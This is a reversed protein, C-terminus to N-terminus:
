KTTSLGLNHCARVGRNLARVTATSNGTKSEKTIASRLDQAVGELSADGSKALASILSGKVLIAFTAGHGKPLKPPTGILKCAAAELQAGHSKTQGAADASCSALLLGVGGVLACRRLIARGPFNKM